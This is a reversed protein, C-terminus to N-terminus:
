KPLPYHKVEGEMTTQVVDTLKYGADIIIKSMSEVSIEGTAKVVLETGREESHYVALAIMNADNNETIGAAGPFGRHYTYGNSRWEGNIVFKFEYNDAGINEVTLSAYTKDDSLVFPIEEAWNNMSGM